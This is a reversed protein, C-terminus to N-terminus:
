PSSHVQTIMPVLAESQGAALGLVMRAALHAEYDKAVACLAASLVLILTSGLLVVRRGVGMAIPMGILNGLGRNSTTNDTRGNFWQM